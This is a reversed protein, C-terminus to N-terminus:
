QRVNKGQRSDALSRFAGRPNMARLASVAMTQQLTKSTLFFVQRGAALGHALAPHLSAATKGSGTPAEAILNEGAELARRVAEMMIKQGPRPAAHPFPLSAAAAAKQRRIEAEAQGIALLQRLRRELDREQEAPDYAAPIVSEEGSALDVYILRGSVPSHGLRRWLDCYVLLQRQHRAFAAGGRRTEQGPLYASKFEEILWAGSAEQVCGDLRGTIVATWGDMPVAARLHVESRYGPQAARREQLVRSHLEAGLGLRHWGEGREFGIRGFGEEGALERVSVELTKSAEDFKLSSFDLVIPRRLLIEKRAAIKKHSFRNKSVRVAHNIRFAGHAVVNIVRAVEVHQFLRAPLKQALEAAGRQLPLLGARGKRHNAHFDGVFARRAVVVQQRDFQPDGFHAAHPQGDAEADEVGAARQQRFSDRAVDARRM